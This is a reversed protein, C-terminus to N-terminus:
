LKFHPVHLAGTYCPSNSLNWQLRAQPQINNQFVTRAKVNWRLQNHNGNWFLIMVWVPIKVKPLGKHGWEKRRTMEGKLVVRTAPTEWVWAKRPRWRLVTDSVAWGPGLKATMSLGAGTEKRFTPSCKPAGRAHTSLQELRIWSKSVGHSKGLLFVPTPQWARRWPVKGVWPNFVCRKRRRCQCAPEKGGADGCRLARKLM